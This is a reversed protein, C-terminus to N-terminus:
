GIRSSHAREGGRGREQSHGRHSSLAQCVAPAALASPSRAPAQKMEGDGEEGSCHRVGLLGEIFLRM